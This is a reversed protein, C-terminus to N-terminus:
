EKRHKKSKKHKKKADADEDQFDDDFKIFNDNDDDGTEASRKKGSIDGEGEDNDANPTPIEKDPCLKALHNISGCIHCCGGRPYLGHDSQPCDRSIHGRGKCVFCSAFPLHGSPDRESPCNQLRHQNSGCNYCIFAGEDLNLRKKSMPCDKFAHGRRRCGLCITFKAAAAEREEELSQTKSFKADREDQTIKPLQKKERAALRLKQRETMKEKKAEKEKLAKALKTIKRREQKSIEGNEVMTKLDDGLVSGDIIKRAYRNCDISPSM